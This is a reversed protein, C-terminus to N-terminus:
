LDSLMLSSKLSSLVTTKIFPLKNKSEKGFYVLSSFFDQINTKRLNNAPIPYSRDPTTLMTRSRFHMSHWMTYLEFFTFLEYKTWM